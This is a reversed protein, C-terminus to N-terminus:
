IGGSFLGYNRLHKFVRQSVKTLQKSSQTIRKRKWFFALLYKSNFLFLAVKRIAGM